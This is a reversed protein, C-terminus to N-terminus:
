VDSAGGGKSVSQGIAPLRISGWASADWIVDRSREADEITFPMGTVLDAVTEVGNSANTVMVYFTGYYGNQLQRVDMEFTGEAREGPGGAPLDHYMCAAVCGGAANRVELRFHLNEVPQRYEWRLRVTLHDKVMSGEEEPYDSECIRVTNASLQYWHGDDEDYRKAMSEDLEGLYLQEAHSVDGDYILRGKELVLCRSCLAHITNMNHSVYLITKHDMDAIERMRRICKEQFHLDGVALVEDMIVIDANLHASVAFALRVYMGSSYRKVPTDIFREIEAFEIIEDMRDRIQRRSLGMISGNMYVNERGTLEPHFGTGVELMSTVRGNYLIRGETPATVRCIMKLLTSKGAGNRGIIGIREGKKVEFSVDDVARFSGNTLTEQDVRSNPDERGRLKAWRSQLDAQLTTSGIVGRRYVKTVHEARIAIEQEKM